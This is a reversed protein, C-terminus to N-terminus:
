SASRDHNVIAKLAEVIRNTLSAAAPKREVIEEHDIDLKGVWEDMLKDEDIFVSWYSISPEIIMTGDEIEFPTKELADEIGAKLGDYVDDTTEKNIRGKFQHLDVEIEPDIPVHMLYNDGGEGSSPEIYAANFLMETIDKHEFGEERALEILALTKSTGYELLNELKALQRNANVYRWGAETDETEYDYVKQEVLKLFKKLETLQKGAGQFFFSPLAKNEGGGQGPAVLQIPM